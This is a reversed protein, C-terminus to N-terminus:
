KAPWTILPRRFQWSSPRTPRFSRFPWTDPLAAAARQRRRCDGHERLSRRDSPWTVWDGARVAHPLSLAAVPLRHAEVQSRRHGDARRAWCRPRSNAAIPSGSTVEDAGERTLMPSSSATRAIIFGSGEGQVPLRMETPLGGFRQQFRRPVRGDLRCRRAGIPAPSCEPPGPVTSVRSTGRISINVVSPSVRAAIGGHGPLSQHPQNTRHFGRLTAMSSNAGLRAVDPRRLDFKQVLSPNFRNM